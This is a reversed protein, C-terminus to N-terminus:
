DPLDHGGYQGVWTTDQAYLMIGGINTTDSPFPDIKIDASVVKNTWDQLANQGWNINPNVQQNSGTFTM